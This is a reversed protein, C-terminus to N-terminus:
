WARDKITSLTGKAVQHNSSDHQIDNRHVHVGSEPEQGSGPKPPPIPVKQAGYPTGTGVNRENSLYVVGNEGRGTSTALELGDGRRIAEGQLRDLGDRSMLDVDDPVEIPAWGMPDTFDIPDNGCYRFLNYEAQDPHATFT